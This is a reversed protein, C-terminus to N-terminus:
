NVVFLDIQFCVCVCRCLDGAVIGVVVAVVICQGVVLLDIRRLGLSVIGSRLDLMQIGRLGLHGM